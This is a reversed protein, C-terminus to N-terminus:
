ATGGIIWISNQFVICGFLGRGLWPPVPAEMWTAGSASSNTNGSSRYLIDNIVVYYFGAYFFTGQGAGSVGFNIVQLTGPRKIVYNKDQYSDIYGNRIYVDKTELVFNRSMFPAALPYRIKPM